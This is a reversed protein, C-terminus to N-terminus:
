LSMMTIVAVLIVFLIGSLATSIIGCVYGVKASQSMQGTREDKSMCALVIATIGLAFWGVFFSVIGCIKSWNALEPEENVPQVHQVSQSVPQPPTFVAGTRCGCNVCIVAQDAIEKGCHSCFM